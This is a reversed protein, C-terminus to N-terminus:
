MTQLFHVPLLRLPVLSSEGPIVTQSIMPFVQTARLTFSLHSFYNANYEFLDQGIMILIQTKRFGATTLADSSKSTSDGLLHHSIM